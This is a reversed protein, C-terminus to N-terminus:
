EIDKPSMALEICAAAVEDAPISDIGTEGGANRIVLPQGGSWDLGPYFIRNRAGYPFWLGPPNKLSFVSVSPTAVAASLHMPGSDHGAFCAAREIIAASERPSVAGCSNLKPGRWAALLRESRESESAAGVAVLGAEPLQRSVLELVRQWNADGWDNEPWKTGISFAVFKRNRDFGDLFESAVGREADSLKLSWNDPNDLAFDGIESLGRFISGAESEVVGNQTGAPPRPLLCARGLGYIKRSGCLGLFLRDRVLVSRSYVPNAYIIIDPGWERIKTILSWFSAINRMGVPYAFYGDIFNNEGLVSWLAPAKENVPTNTLVRIESNPWQRALLHYIPLTVLTDGLSGLRHVLIKGPESTM